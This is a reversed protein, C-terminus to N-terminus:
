PRELIKSLKHGTFISNSVEEHRKQGTYSLIVSSHISLSLFVLKKTKNSCHVPLDNIPHPDVKFIILINLLKPSLNSLFDFSFAYGIVGYGHAHM